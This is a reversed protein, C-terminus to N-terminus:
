NLKVLAGKIAVIASSEVNVGANGKSTLTTGAESDLSTGAKNSLSTGAESALSTGAKISVSGSVDITLNGSVKWTVNGTVDQDFNAKNTHTENGTVTVSRTGKVEHTENGTNVQITRNGKEVTLAENGEQITSTRNQKITNTEDNLVDKVRDHEIKITMDKQAHCFIEEADKKDEFRLENFGGGGKSSNTKITSKTQDAPLTYPVLQEANYLAGTVVPQDPDGELFGVIVEQGLRPLFFGGWQKGAWSQNVRLWCSSNEDNQGRQDWHFQVKVRGYKDTWIEEGSKGVITATQVGPIVPKPTQRLPRFSTAAPFAGFSNSYSEQTVFHSVHNLVYDTNADARDYGKLTFKHGAVFARCFGEGRLLKGPWEEAEIRLKARKEGTDKKAFGGPYDFMRMESGQGTVSTVLDTSPTEFNFDDLAYKGTVVQQEITCRTVVHDDTANIATKRYRVPTNELGPCVQHADADDALVLTHLGDTHEFFYHIGEDEMLRSVFAFATERYQVCYERPSYSEKLDLRFDTFGLDGFVKEIIQPVNLNQFIRCDSTLTLMWLWPHLEATYHTFREDGGEQTFRTVIGNIYRKAGDNHQLTVTLSKGLIAAFDLSNDGSAMELVFSFLGSIREEGQLTKLLLKDAGLPSTITVPLNGQTYAAM